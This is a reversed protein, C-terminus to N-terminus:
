IIVSRNIILANIMDESYDGKKSKQYKIVITKEPFDFINSKGGFIVFMEDETEVNKLIARFGCRHLGDAVFKNWIDNYEIWKQKM